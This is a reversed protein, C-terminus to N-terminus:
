KMLHLKWAGKLVFPLIWDEDMTAFVYRTAESVIRRNMEKVFQSKTPLYGIPLDTRWTAWLLISKSIPFAVESEPKGVGMGTFYFLPNDSTMFGITDNCEMFRWTMGVLAEVIQPSRDPPINDLWIQKPPDKSYRDLIERSESIRKKAIHSKDPQAIAIQLLEENIESYLEECISPALERLREKGKPVRKFMVAMYEALTVKENKDITQRNRIKRLVDNAPNEITNALYQEVEESYFKTINGVSKIQTTFKRQEVKDYVWIGKGNNQSFGKLYYQPVYHDGM